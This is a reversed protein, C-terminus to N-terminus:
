REELKSIRNNLLKIADFIHEFARITADHNEKDLVRMEELKSLIYKQFEEDNLNDMKYRAITDM